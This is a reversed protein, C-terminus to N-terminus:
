DPRGALSRAQAASVVNEKREYLEIADAIM